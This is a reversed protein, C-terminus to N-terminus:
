KRKSTIIYDNGKQLIEIYFINRHNTM